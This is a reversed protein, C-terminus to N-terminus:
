KSPGHDGRSDDAPCWAAGDADVGSLTFPLGDWERRGGRRQVRRKAGQRQEPGRVLRAAPDTRDPM